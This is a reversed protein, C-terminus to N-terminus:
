IIIQTTDPCRLLCDCIRDVVLYEVLRNVPRAGYEKEMLAKAVILNRTKNTITITISDDVRSLAKDIALDVIAAMGKQDLSKFFVIEDIRNVFEPRFFNTLEKLQDSHRQKISEHSFQNWTDAFGLLPQNANSSSGANSTMVIMANRFSYTRKQGDSLLGDELIQLLLNLVVPHAKEIEDFLVVCCPNRKIANTLKGGEQYGVYGPPSGILSSVSMEDMYESMDFRILKNSKGYFNSSVLKTIETKGVGTPGLFLMSCVPRKTSHLGCSYRKLTHMVKDIVEDQSIINHRLVDELRKLKISTSEIIEDFDIENMSSVIEVIDRERVVRNNTREGKTFSELVVKSCAEDILDIAKDPFNRYPIYKEALHVSLEVAGDEIKCNHHDEYVGKISRMMDLTTKTSPEDVEIYQFRRDFAPDNQFYKVYEERTTAGICQIRGRALSEKLLDSVNIEGKVESGVSEKSSILTHIEDIFLIYKKDKNEENENDIEKLVTKVREELDGRASTGAVVSSVDLQIVKYDQIEWNITEDEIIRRSLEEVIATKGVGADGVLIANKKTRKLLVQDLKAIEVSRGIIPPYMGSKANENMDITFDEFTKKKATVTLVERRVCHARTRNARKSTLNFRSDLQTLLQVPHHRSCSKSHPNWMTM